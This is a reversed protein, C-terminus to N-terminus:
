IHRLSADLIRDLYEDDPEDPAQYFQVTRERESLQHIHVNDVHQLSGVNSHTYTSHKYTSLKTDLTKTNNPSRPSENELKDSTNKRSTAQKIGHQQGTTDLRKGQRGKKNKLTGDAYWDNTPKPTLPKIDKVRFYHNGKADKADEYECVFKLEVMHGLLQKVKSYRRKPDEGMATRYLCIFKSNKSVTLNGKKTKECNFFCTASVQKEENYLELILTPKIGAPTPSNGTRADRCVFEAPEYVTWGTTDYEPKVAMHIRYWHHRNDVKVSELNFGTMLRQIWGALPVAVWLYQNQFGTKRYEYISQQVPFGLANNLTQFDSSQLLWTQAEM